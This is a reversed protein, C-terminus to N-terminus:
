RTPLDATNTSPAGRRAIFASIQDAIPAREADYSNQEHWWSKTCDYCLPWGDSARKPKSPYFAKCAKCRKDGRLAAEVEAALEQM